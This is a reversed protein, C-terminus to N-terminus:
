YVYPTSPTKTPTEKNPHRVQHKLQRIRKIPINYKAYKSSRNAYKKIPIAYNIDSANQITYKNYIVM